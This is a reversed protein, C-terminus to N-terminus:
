SRPASDKKSSPLFPSHIPRETIQEARDYAILVPTSYIHPSSLM